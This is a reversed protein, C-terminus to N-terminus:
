AVPLDRYELPPSPLVAFLPHCIQSHLSARAAQCQIIVEFINAAICKKAYIVFNIPLPFSVKSFLTSLLCYLGEIGLIKM